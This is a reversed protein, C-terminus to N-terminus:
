KKNDVRPELLIRQTRNDALWCFHVLASMWVKVRHQGRFEQEGILAHFGRDYHSSERGTVYRGLLDEKVWYIEFYGFPKGDWCGIVPFSHRDNLAKTLFSEQTEIPGQCGWFASVRPQNMWDHLLETDCPHINLNGMSPLTAHSVGSHPPLFNPIGNSGNSTPGRYAPAKTSMSATRFSLYQGISPIYRTYFMTGQAPPKPRLPHRINDTFIYQPPAPPYYTPLHSGSAFPGPSHPSWLGQPAEAAPGSNDPKPTMSQLATSERNPSAPRSSYPSAGPFPSSYAPSLTFLFIRPDLQWFACQSVFLKTWGEGGRDNLATGVWSEESAIIGM